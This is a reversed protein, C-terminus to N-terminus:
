LAGKVPRLGKEAVCTKKQNCALMDNECFSFIGRDGIIIHDVVPIGLLNGSEELVKTVDIDLESPTCNGSPHNHILMIGAANSLIASKFVERPHILSKNLTGMSVINMNIVQNRTRMNLVCFLERDYKSLEVGVVDLVDAVSEIEKRSYLPQEEVLRVSVVKIEDRKAM